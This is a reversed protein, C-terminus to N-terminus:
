MSAGRWEWSARSQKIEKEKKFFLIVLPFAYGYNIKGIFYIAINYFINNYSQLVKKKKLDLWDSKLHNPITKGGVAAHNNRSYLDVALLWPNPPPPPHERRSWHAHKVPSEAISLDKGIM